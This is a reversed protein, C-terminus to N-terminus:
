DKKGGIVETIIAGDKEYSRYWYSRKVWGDGVPEDPACTWYKPDPEGTIVDLVMGFVHGYLDAHDSYIRTIIGEGATVHIWKQGVEPKM